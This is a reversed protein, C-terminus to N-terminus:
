PEFITKRNKMRYSNGSLNVVECRFLLRDLLATALVEDDLMQAWQKPAKNTTIVFSTKEFLQNIFNFLSVALQKELPFMMIDDIVILQAKCLRKYDATASRTINKMKLINAIEEMTRFYAKYGNKVADHCLGAAIFTKGTGSPGMLVINFLQEIWNLERLQLLMTKSLGNEVAYDYQDLEHILPLGATKSRRELDKAERHRAEIALLKITYDMYSMQGAQAEMLVPDLETVLSSLKFRRCYDIILQKKDM